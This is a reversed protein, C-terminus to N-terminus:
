PPEAVATGVLLRLVPVSAIGVRTNRLMGGDSPKLSGLCTAAPM